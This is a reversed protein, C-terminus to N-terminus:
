NKLRSSLLLECYRQFIEGYAAPYNCLFTEINQHNFEVNLGWSEVFDPLSEAITKKKGEETKMSDMYERFEDRNRYKFVLPITGPEEKGPVTIKVKAEFTPELTIKLM